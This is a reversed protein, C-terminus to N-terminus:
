AQAPENKKKSCEGSCPAEAKRRLAEHESWPEIEDRHFAHRAGRVEGDLQVVVTETLPNLDIVKGEGKPTIVRKKRKPLTKRAAAYAEYEYILCCRLRGCMGTIESPALSIGQAKAMKISIPSFDTLFMTCCREEQGCAGIGGMIKAVDRPGIQRMEINTNTYSKQMVKRLNNLNIKGDKEYSYLFSLASGNYNFDAKIIKIDPLTMKSATERCAIMAEMEKAKWSENLLLERPTAQHLVKKWGGKPASPANEPIQVVEGLHDGRATDVIAHDGIKLTPVNGADFHYIKGIKTFRIGIIKPQM